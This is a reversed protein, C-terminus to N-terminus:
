LKQQRAQHLTHLTITRVEKQSQAIHQQLRNQAEETERAMIAQLIAGHEAYTAEVRPTKTFDMRRVIRIKETVDRHVRAMEPNGAAMVLDMHFQEDYRAVEQGDPLPASDTWFTKLALLIAPQSDPPLACLRKVAELELVVRLDYLSELYDFDIHKVQWGSRPQVAVYGEQELAYLAQRVPTRSAGMRAAIESESFHDGPLLRFDFIDQKLQHYIREAQGQTRPAKSINTM